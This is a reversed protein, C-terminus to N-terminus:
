CSGELALGHLCGWFEFRWRVLTSNTMQPRRVDERDWRDGASSLCRREFFNNNFGNWSVQSMFPSNQQYKFDKRVDWIFIIWLKLLLSPWFIWPCLCICISHSSFAKPFIILFIENIFYIYVFINRILEFRKWLFLRVKFNMLFYFILYFLSAIFFSPSCRLCYRVRQTSQLLRMISKM